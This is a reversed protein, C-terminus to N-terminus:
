LFARLSTSVMVDAARIPFGRKDIERYAASRPENFKRVIWDVLRERQIDRLAKINLKYVEVKEPGLDAMFSVPSEIIVEDGDLIDHWDAYRPSDKVLTAHFLQAKGKM